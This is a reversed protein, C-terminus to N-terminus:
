KLLNRVDLDNSLVGPLHYPPPLPSFWCSANYMINQITLVSSNSLCAKYFSIYM